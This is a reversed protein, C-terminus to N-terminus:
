KILFKKCPKEEMTVTAHSPTPTFDGGRHGKGDKGHEPKPDNHGLKKGQETLTVM